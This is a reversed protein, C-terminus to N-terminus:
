GAGTTQDGRGARPATGLATLWARIAEATTRAHTETMSWHDGPVDVTDYPERWSTRWTGGHHAERGGHTRMEPVRETARVLLTPVGTAGPRWGRTMRTYAGLAAMSMDDVALDFREGMELPVRAPMALLWPEDERDPTVHYTDVIVLGSPPRGASALRAAVSHAPYGGMSYGLLVYPRDGVHEEVTAAHLDVLTEWDRPVADGHVVGPHQIELVDREGGFFRALTRYWPGGPGPSFGPFCVLVAHETREDGGALSLPALTHRARDARDFVPVALSANMLLHMAQVVEGTQCVRRYLSALAQPPRATPAHPAPEAAMPEDPLTPLSPLAPGLETLLHDALEAVSPRDFALTAPLPLGTLTSVRNRLLVGTLSDFGLEGFHAGPDVDTADPHGLVLAAEERVLALLASARDAGPLSALQDRWDAPHAAAEATNAGDAVSRAAPRPSRILGRLPAPVPPGATGTARAPALPLPALVAEDMGLATDFLALGQEASVPRVPGYGAGATRAAMGGDGEGAGDETEAREAWPGWVLSLAPLGLAARHLALGDLFANAAAYNGQGANGLLGAASSFLVFHSLPLDRTLEHLHWAADAKPRLVAALREPTQAELVGDDLVGAAHVVATLDPAYKGVVAALRDRDAADCALVDVQTGTEELAARLRRAGPAAPGRRSILVLRGVQHRTALHRALLGGLAGTGGTILVTGHLTAADAPAPAAALRPVRVTGKRVALQPEGTAIAAPLLRLSEPRGDVDVLTLRGPFESQATRLLGWVTAAALDPSPSAADRVVVVLHPGPASLRTRLVDLARVTLAHADAVPGGSFSSSSLPAPPGSPVALSVVIPGEGGAPLVSGLGLDDPEAVVPAPADPGAAAPIGTWRPRYLTGAAAKGADRLPRTTLSEIRLVPRGTRDALDVTVTDEGTACMRVRVATAGGAFLTMGRWAFPLRAGGGEPPAALLRTHLAADLLAPHIGYRRADADVPEALRVEAFLEEDRRWVATVGQFAPGYAYGTDALRRYAGTLNVPVADPPPWATADRAPGRSGTAPGLRGTAHHTWASLAGSDAPRSHVEASRRGAADPEGLIVRLRVRDGEVPLVLPALLALDELVETGCTDGAHVVLEAFAAGPLLVQGAVVHDLLWPQDVTSLQGTCLLRETGPVTTMRDLLPHGDPAPVPGATDPASGATDALWYRKRQFPYTPLDVRRADSGAFVRRWDVPLGRVHLRAVADLATRPEPAGARVTATCVPEEGTGALGALAAATLQAGPGIEVFATVREDHALRHVVDGFRVTERAHRVWYAASHPEDGMEARGTLAPVVPVRAPRYTLRAAVRGLAALMPEVLPSHFAHSVRLRTTRRGRAAFRAAVTLVSAEAGSIVVSRPANVAAIAVSHASDTSAVSDTGNALDALAEAVEEEAADLAVMAGGSPLQRMLRGRAGVLEVADAGSLIGAAHAAALEGVSHGALFDPRVGWSELLRFLAVEFAFLGAQSFDTRELLGADETDPGAWLVSRLPRELGGVDDFRECLADFARAFVPFAAHLERGMGHRQSGQGSFMLALRGASVPAPLPGDSALADLATLPVAGDGTPLAARHALTARTTALSFAVDALGAGPHARLCAALQRAQARLAGPSAASLLLPAASLPLRPSSPRRATADPLPGPTGGPTGVPTGVAGARAANEPAPEEVIVHANTGSIGFASVGARRPSGPAPRWEEERTLLRVAGSSWDVRPSPEGTHLTRPLRGHRMALVTKIVGAVGAAAQSHGINSKLAGLWLARGGTRGPGYAAMLARAEIPDGLATGTGHAEVGDIDAPSLGADALAGLIVQEQAPGSPATLGNSPGDSNVASGRLLALVPHGNRRADSLRELLVLGVGEGWGTGDAAASFPKCRGDPALGRLRSFAVFPGPTAMVTVGGALALSCEKSRLARAAWHMAVLSSSCATDVTVAPGRLGLTYAVRGSAVSGASGLALHAELEHGGHHSFRGGYDGHMIGAFVGTDSGRLEAPDIGARELLEWATELLLRQQPDTALAERPSMGFFAADFDGARHLFGGRRTVSTGLRDPDPDFLGPLAWGRDTPFDSTADTGETVLRWLDEPSNVDGPYRCAMSVIVVPDEREEASPRPTVATPVRAPGATAGGFLATLLHDAVEAPTPRDFVLTAPLDLGTAAGLRDRLLVGGLSALGFLTFPRDPEPGPGPVDCVRATADLVLRLVADYRGSAPLQLLRERLAASASERATTLRETLQRVLDARLLKGSSTRPVSGTEYVEDPVKFGSLRERCAALARGTDVGGSGSGPVVFAIPVEGLVDHPRGVVAADAIDPCGLLVQEVEPPNINQGGRIILEKLRGTVQIGSHPLRRGLDGTRYWGDHFARATADPRNHYGLMLNPGRVRLEGEEGDAVDEGTTPHAVRVEVGPLPLGNSDDTRFEGLGNATIKGCTETSGYTDLLPAGLLKETEARLAPPCPAGGTACLRLGPLPRVGKRVSDLLLHFTAPVGALVTYPREALARAVSAGRDLLYASAGVSVVGLLCMSHAMAHHLPLPWLMRDQRQFDWRPVYAAAVSWLAGRQSSVVGKSEGTTGSTYLIWAPEDLGLDDRPPVGPDTGALAEFLVAGAPAHGPLRDTVAVVVTWREPGNAPRAIRPLLAEETIVATAGSDDLVYSLEADTARPDLPVGVAGARLVALYSEMMEVRSGLCLAVRDGHRVGLRALHGALRRTREELAAYTVARRADQFATRDGARRAHEELVGPLARIFEGRVETM